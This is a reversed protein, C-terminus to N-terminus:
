FVIRPAFHTADVIQSGGFGRNIVRHEPFDQALSKWLRVTSSGIFLVEGKPPASTRDAAEYAAIENEWKAFEDAPAAAPTPKTEEAVLVHGSALLLGAALVRLTLLSIVKM